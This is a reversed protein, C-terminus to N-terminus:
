SVPAAFPPISFAVITSVALVLCGSAIQQAKDSIAGGTDAFTAGFMAGAASQAIPMGAFGPGFSQGVIYAAVALALMNGAAVSAEAGFAAAAGSALQSKRAMATSCPFGAAMATSFWGAVAGAFRDGSEQASAPHSGGEAVLWQSELSSKLSALVLPM